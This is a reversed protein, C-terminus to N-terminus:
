VAAPARADTTERVRLIRLGSAWLDDVFTDNRPGTFHVVAYHVTDHEFQAASVLRLGRKRPVLASTRQPPAMDNTNSM